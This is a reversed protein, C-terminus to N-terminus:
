LLDGQRDCSTGCHGIRVNDVRWRVVGWRTRGSERAAKKFCEDLTKRACSIQAAISVVAAWRSTHEREHHLVMRVARDRVEPSFKNTRKITM